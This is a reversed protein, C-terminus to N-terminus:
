PGLIKLNIQGKRLVTGSFKLVTLERVSFCVSMVQKTSFSVKSLQIYNKQEGSGDAGWCFKFAIKLSAQDLSSLDMFQLRESLTLSLCSKLPAKVGHRYESLAPRHLKNEERVYKVPPLWIRDLLKLRFETWVVQSIGAKEIMWTAGEEEAWETLTDRKM